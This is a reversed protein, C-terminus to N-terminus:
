ATDLHTARRHQSCGPGPGLLSGQGLIVRSSGAPEQSALHAVQGGADAKRYARSPTQVQGDLWADAVAAVGQDAPRDQELFDDRLAM